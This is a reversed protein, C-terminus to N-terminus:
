GGLKPLPESSEPPPQLGNDLFFAKVTELSLAKAITPATIVGGDQDAEVRRSTGATNVGVVRGCFDILPGGSSGKDIYASHYLWTGTAGEAQKSVISGPDIVPERFSQNPVPNRLRELFAPDRQVIVGPYGAARVRDGRDANAFTLVGSKGAAEPASLVALDVGGDSVSQGTAVVTASVSGISEGFLRITTNPKNVVHANTIVQDPAVFFGTGTSRLKNGELIAVLVTAKDVLAQVTIGDSTAGACAETVNAPAAPLADQAPLPLSQGDIQKFTGDGICVGGQLAGELSAIQERLQENHEKQAASLAANQQAAFDKAAEDPYGLVGPVLTVLGLFALAVVCAILPARYASFSSATPKAKSM